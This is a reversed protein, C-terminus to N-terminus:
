VGMGSNEVKDCFLNYLYIMKRQIAINRCRVTCVGKYSDDVPISKSHKSVRTNKFCDNPLSLVTSWYQVIEDTKQDDRISITCTFDSPPLHYNNKLVTTYLRLIKPDSSSLSGTKISIGKTFFIMSLAFDLIDANVPLRNVISSAEQKASLYSLQKQARHWEAAKVQARALAHMQDSKLKTQLNTSLKVDSFWVSLTSRPIGLQKEITRISLGDTRM